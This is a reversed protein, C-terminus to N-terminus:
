IHGTALIREIVKAVGDDAHHDTVEDTQAKVEDLANGMAVSHGAWRLMPLDNHNDGFAVVDAADIELREALVQLGFSKDIGAGTIEVFPAGSTSVEVDISIRPALLAVLARDALTDHSVLLKIVGSTPLRDSGSSLVWGDSIPYRARFSADAGFTDVGEWAIAAGDIQRVAHGLAVLDDDDILHHDAVRDAAIDYLSAGNSCVAWRIAPMSRLLPVATMHSRGTAPVVVIGAASAAGIAQMTRASFQHDSGLLTGDLDTAIM